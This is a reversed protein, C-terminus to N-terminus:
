LQQLETSSAKCPFLFTFYWQLILPNHLYAAYYHFRFFSASTEPLRSGQFGKMESSEVKFSM